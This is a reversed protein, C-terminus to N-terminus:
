RPYITKAKDRLRKM